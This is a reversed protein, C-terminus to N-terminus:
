QKNPDKKTNQNDKIDNNDLSIYLHKAFFSVTDLEWTKIIKTLYNQLDEKKFLEKNQEELAEEEAITVEALIADELESNSTSTIPKFWISSSDSLDSTVMKELDPINPPIVISQNIKHEYNNDLELIYLKDDDLRINAFYKQSNDQEKTKTQNQAVNNIKNKNNEFDILDQETADALYNNKLITDINLNLDVLANNFNSEIDKRLSDIITLHNKINLMGVISNHLLRDQPTFPVQMHRQYYWNSLMEAEELLESSTLRIENQAQELFSKLQALTSIKADSIKQITGIKYFKSGIIESNAVVQIQAPGKIVFSYKQYYPLGYHYTAVFISCLFIPLCINKWNRTFFNGKRKVWNQKQLAQKIRYPSLTILSIGLTFHISLITYPLTIFLFKFLHYWPTDLTFGILYNTLAETIQLSQIILTIISNSDDLNTTIASALIKFAEQQNYAPNFTFTAILSCTLGTLLISIWRRYFPYLAPFTSSKFYTSIYKSNLVLEFIIYLIFSSAIIILGPISNAVLAYFAMVGTLFVMMPSALTSRTAYILRQWFGRPTFLTKLEENIIVRKYRFYFIRPLFMYLTIAIIAIVSKTTINETANILYFFGIGLLVVVLFRILLNFFPTNYISTQNITM